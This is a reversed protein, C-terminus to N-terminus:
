QLQWKVTNWTRFYDFGPQMMRSENQAEGVGLVFWTRARSYTMRFDLNTDKSDLLISEPSVTTLFREPVLDELIQGRLTHYRLIDPEEPYTPSSGDDEENSNPHEVSDDLLQALFEPSFGEHEIELGLM